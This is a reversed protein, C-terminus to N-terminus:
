CGSLIVIIDNIDVYVFGVCWIMLLLDYGKNLGFCNLFVVVLLDCYFM